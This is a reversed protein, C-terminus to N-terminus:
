KGKLIIDCYKKVAMQSCYKKEVVMRANKGKEILEKKNEKAKDIIEVAELYGEADVFYGINEDKVIHEVDSESDFIALVPSGCAMINWMKSPMASKGFGKKCTLMCLDGLSYVYSVENYPLLPLFTINSLGKESATEIYYQKQAGEGFIIFRIDENSRLEYAINLIAEINQAYGLNGAYVINFKDKEIKYREYIPNEEKKVPFVNETNVWNYIKHIKHNPVGKQRINDRIADSIVIIKDANQYTISEIKKGIRWILSKEDTMGLGVLSDPFVDQLNYVFPIHKIKKIIAAMLGQTPPTSQVFILDAKVTLSKLIFFINMLIYRIARLVISKSERFLSIRHIRLNGNCKKENKKSKYHKRTEKDIGRTPMPVFLDVICGSKALGEYLETSLYLSAAKEPEYYASYILIRM